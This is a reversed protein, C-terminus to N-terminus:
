RDLIEQVKEQVANESFLRKSAEKRLLDRLVFSQTVGDEQAIMELAAKDHLTMDLGLHVCCERENKPVRVGGVRAAITVIVTVAAAKM